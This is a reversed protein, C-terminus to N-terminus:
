SKVIKQKRKEWGPPNGRAYMPYVTKQGKRNEKKKNSSPNCDPLTHVMGLGPSRNERM